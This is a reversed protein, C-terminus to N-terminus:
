CTAGAEAGRMPEPAFGEALTFVPLKVAFAGIGVPVPMVVGQLHGQTAFWVWVRAHQHVQGLQALDHVAFNNVLDVMAMEVVVHGPQALANGGSLVQDDLEPLPQLRGKRRAQEVLDPEDLGIVVAGAISALAVWESMWLHASAPRGIATAPRMTARALRGVAPAM